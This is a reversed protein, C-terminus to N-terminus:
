CQADGQEKELSALVVGGGVLEGENFFIEKVIGNTAAKVSHEMKMAELILLTDGQKVRDGVQAIIKFIKGPMPSIMSNGSVSSKSRKRKLLSEETMKVCDDHYLIQNKGILAHISKNNYKLILNNQYSSTLTYKYIKGRFSFEVSDESKKLNKIEFSQNDIEFTKKM